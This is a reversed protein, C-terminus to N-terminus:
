NIKVIKETHIIEGEKGIVQIFYISNNWSKTLVQSTYAKSEIQESEYIIKGDLSLIRIINSSSANNIKISIEEKTPNPFASFQITGIPDKKVIIQNTDGQLSEPLRNYFRRNTIIELLTRALSRNSSQSIAVKELFLSDSTNLQYSLGIKMRDINIKQVEKFEKMEPTAESLYRLVKSAEKFEGLELLLGLKIQQSVLSQKGEVIKLASRFDNKHVFTQIQNRLHVQYYYSQDHPNKLKKTKKDGDGYPTCLASLPSSNIGYNGSNSPLFCPDTQSPHHFYTFTETNGVTQIDATQIPTTFCNGAAYFFDGQFIHVTGPNNNDISELHFDVPTSFDNCLFQMEKNAGIAAIGVSSANISNRKIYNYSKWNHTGTQYLYIGAITQGITNDNIFFTSPGDINIAISSYSFMNNIVKLGTASSTSNADIHYNNNEFTNPATDLDGIEYFTSFPHTGKTGIAKDNNEFHNGDKVIVGSNISYIGYASMNLISCGNFTIGDTSWITVGHSGNAGGDLTCDIFRSKNPFKYKMFGSVVKNDVFESDEFYVVGGWYQNNGQDLYKETRTVARSYKIISGNIIQVVGADDSQLPGFPNPQIKSSNGEVFISGWYTDNCLNTISGGDVVLKAGRKVIFDAGEAMRVECTITLTAGTEIVVNRNILKLNDWVVNEGSEIIWDSAMQTCNDAWGYKPTNISAARNFVTEWQCPTLANPLNTQSTINNGVGWNCRDILMNQQDICVIEGPNYGDCVTQMPCNPDCENEPSIDSTLGSDTYGPSCQNQCWTVHDLSLSHALEHNLVRALLFNTCNLYRNLTLDCGTCSWGSGCDEDAEEKLHIDVVKDNYINADATQSPHFWIGGHLDNPNDSETYLKYNFKAEVIHPSLQGNPGPNQNQEMDDLYSNAKDLIALARTIGEQVSIINGMNDPYYHVNVYVTFPAMLNFDDYSVQSPCSTLSSKLEITEKAYSDATQCHIQSYIPVYILLSLFTLLTIKLQTFNKM